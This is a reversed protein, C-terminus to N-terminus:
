CNDTPKLKDGKRSHIGAQSALITVLTEIKTLRNEHKTSYGIITLLNIILAGIIVINDLTLGPM